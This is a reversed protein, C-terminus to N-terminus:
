VLYLLSTYSSASYGSFSIIKGDLANKIDERSILGTIEKKEFNVTPSVLWTPVRLIDSFSYIVVCLRSSEDELFKIGSLSSFDYKTLIYSLIKDIQEQTYRM